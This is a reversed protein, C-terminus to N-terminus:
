IAAMLLIIHDVLQSKQYNSVVSIDSLLVSTSSPWWLNGGDLSSKQTKSHKRFKGINWEIQSLIPEIEGHM